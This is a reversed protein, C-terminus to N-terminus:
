EAGMFENYSMEKYLIEYDANYAENRVFIRDKDGSEFEILNDLGVMDDADPVIDDGDDILTGDGFYTFLQKTFSDFQPDMYEEETIIYPPLANYQAGAAVTDETDAMREEYDEDSELNRAENEAIREEDDEDRTVFELKEEDTMNAMEEKIKQREEDSISFTKYGEKRVREMYEKKLEDNKKAMEKAKKVAEEQEPTMVYDTNTGNTSAQTYHNSDENIITKDAIQMTSIQSVYDNIEDNMQNIIDDTQKKMRYQGVFYGGAFGAGAAVVVSTLLIITQKTM